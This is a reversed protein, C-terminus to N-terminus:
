GRRAVSGVPLLDEASEGVLVLDGGSEGCIVELRVESRWLIEADEARDSRTLLALWGFVRLVAMYVLHLSVPGSLASRSTGACGSGRARRGLAFAYSWILALSLIRAV